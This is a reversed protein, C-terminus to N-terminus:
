QRVSCLVLRGADLGLVARHVEARGSELDMVGTRGVRVDCPAATENRGRTSPAYFERM